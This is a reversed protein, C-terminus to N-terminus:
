RMGVGLAAAGSIGRRAVREKRCQRARFRDNWREVEALYAETGNRPVIWLRTGAGSREVTTELQHGVPLGLEQALGRIRGLLSSDDRSPHFGDAVDRGSTPPGAHVGRELLQSDLSESEGFQISQDFGSGRRSSLLGILGFLLLILM